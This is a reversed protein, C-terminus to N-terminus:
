AMGVYFAWEWRSKPSNPSNKNTKLLNGGPKISRAVVKDTRYKNLEQNTREKAILVAEEAM